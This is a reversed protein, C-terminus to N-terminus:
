DGAQSLPAVNAAELLSRIDQKSLLAHFLPVIPRHTVQHSLPLTVGREKLLDLLTTALKLRATEGGGGGSPESSGRGPTGAATTQHLSMSMRRASLSGHRATLLPHFFAAPVAAHGGGGGGSVQKSLVSNAVARNMAGSAVGAATNTRLNNNNNLLALGGAPEGSSNNTHRHSYYLYLLGNSPMVRFLPRRRTPAASQPPHSASPLSPPPSVPSGPLDEESRATTRRSPLACRKRPLVVVLRNVTKLKHVEHHQATLAKAYRGVQVKYEQRKKQLLDRVADELSPPPQVAAAGQQTTPTSVNPKRLSASLPRGGGGGRGEEQRTSESLMAPEVLVDCQEVVRRQVAIQMDCQRRLERIMDSKMLRPVGRRNAIEVEQVETRSRITKIAEQAESRLRQIGLVCQTMVLEHRADRGSRVGRWWRQLRRIHHLYRRLHSPARLLHHMSQLFNHILTASAIRRRARFLGRWLTWWRWVIKGARRMVRREVRDLCNRFPPIFRTLFNSKKVALPKPNAAAAAAVATVPPPSASRSPEPATPNKEEAGGTPQSTPSSSSSSTSNHQRQLARQTHYSINALFAAHVIACLWGNRQITVTARDLQGGTSDMAAEWSEVARATAMYLVCARKAEAERVRHQAVVVRGLATTHQFYAQLAGSEDEAILNVTPSQMGAPGGGRLPDASTRSPFAPSPTPSPPFQLPAVRTAMTTTPCHDTHSQHHNVVAPDPTTASLKEGGGGVGARRRGGGTRTQQEVRMEACVERFAMRADKNEMLKRLKEAISLSSLRRPDDRTVGQSSHTHSAENGPTESPATSPRVTPNLRAEVHKPLAWLRKWTADREKQLTAIVERKTKQQKSLALAAGDGDQEAMWRQSSALLAVDDEEDDGSEIEKEEDNGDGRLASGGELSLGSTLFFGGVGGGRSGTASAARRLSSPKSSLGNRAIGKKKTTTISESKHLAQSVVTLTRNMDNASLSIASSPRSILKLSSSPMHAAAARHGGITTHSSPHTTVDASVSRDEQTAAPPLFSSESSSLTTRLAAASPIRDRELASAAASQPRMTTRHLHRGAGGDDENEQTRRRWLCDSEATLGRAQLMSRLLEDVEPTDAVLHGPVRMELPRSSSVPRGVMVSSSSLRHAANPTM